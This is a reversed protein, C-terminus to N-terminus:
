GSVLQRCKFQGGKELLAIAYPEFIYGCLSATIPNGECSALLDRMKHKDNLGKNKVIISMAAESAFCVSPETFPPTSTMHILSHIVMLSKESLTSDLGINKMCDELSCNKCAVELIQTPNKSTDELVLRPIGGLIQFRDHWKSTAHAPFLPAIAELESETWPPMYFYQPVPPKKFDNVMERRPSTSLVFTCLEIPFKNLDDEKQYKADFLCWLSENWFSRHIFTPITELLFVGGQGDYYINYPHFIFLVRKGEKVLKWLLYILFMSKGIGPTGTIIVKDIGPHIRSAIIRYSERIYLRNLNTSPMKHQGFSIWEDRETASCIHKYFPVDCTPFPALQISSPVIVVLAEEETEGLGNIGRSSKLPEGEEPDIVNQRKDFADKNKYILLQSATIGTLIPANERHILKRFQAVVSGAPLSVYDASTGKYSKGTDSDLLVFWILPRPSLSASLQQQQQINTDSSIEKNVSSNSKKRKKYM